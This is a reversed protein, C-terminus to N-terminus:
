VACWAAGAAAAEGTGILTGLVQLVGVTLEVDLLPPGLDLEVRVGRKLELGDLPM